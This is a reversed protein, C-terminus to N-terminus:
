ASDSYFSSIETSRGGACLRKLRDPIECIWLNQNKNELELM